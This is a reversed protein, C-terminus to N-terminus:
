NNNVIERFSKVKVRVTLQYGIYDAEIIGYELLADRIAFFYPGVTVNYDEYWDIVEKVPM